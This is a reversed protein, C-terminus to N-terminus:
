PVPPATTPHSRGRAAGLGSHPRAKRRPPPWCEWPAPLKGTSSAHTALAKRVADEGCGFAEGIVSYRVNKKHLGLYRLLHFVEAMALNRNAQAYAPRGQDGRPKSPIPLEGQFCQIAWAALPAPFPRGQEHHWVAIGDLAERYDRDDESAPIYTRLAEDAREPGFTPEIRPWNAAITPGRPPIPSWDFGHLWYRVVFDAEEQAVVVDLGDFLGPRLLAAHEEAPLEWVKLGANLKKFAAAWAARRPKDMTRPRRPSGADGTIPQQSM